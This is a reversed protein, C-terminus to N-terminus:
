RSKLLGFLLPENVVYCEGMLSDHDLNIKKKKENPDFGDIWISCLDFKDGATNASQGYFFLYFLFRQRRQCNVSVDFFISWHPAFESPMDFNSVRLSCFCFFLLFNLSFHNSTLTYFRRHVENMTRKVLWFSCMSNRCYSLNSYGCMTSTIHWMACLEYLLSFFFYRVVFLNKAQPKQTWRRFQSHSLTSLYLCRLLSLFFINGLTNFSLWDRRNHSM